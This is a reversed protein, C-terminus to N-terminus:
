RVVDTGVLHFIINLENKKCFTLDPEPFSAWAMDAKSNFWMPTSCADDCLYQYTYIDSLILLMINYDFIASM